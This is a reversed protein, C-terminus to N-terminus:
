RVGNGNGYAVFCRCIRCHPEFGRLGLILLGCSDADSQSLSEHGFLGAGFAARLVADDVQERVLCTRVVEAVAVEAVPVLSRIVAVDLGRQQALVQTRTAVGIGLDGCGKLLQFRGGVAGADVEIRDVHPGILQEAIANLDLGGGTLGILGDM